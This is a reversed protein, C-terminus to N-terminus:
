KRGRVTHLVIPLCTAFGTFDTDTTLIRMRYRVAVACILLDTSTGQVGKSRCVNYFAAATEDDEEDTVLNPYFRLYEKLQSFREQPQACSLLEQRIPGLLQVFDARVLRVVEACFPDDKPPHRRLFRTWVCTDVIVKV